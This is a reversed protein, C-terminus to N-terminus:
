NVIKITSDSSQALSIYPLINQHSIYIDQYPDTYCILSQYTKMILTELFGVTTQPTQSTSSYLFASLLSSTMLKEESQGLM